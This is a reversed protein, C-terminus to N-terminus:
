ENLTQLVLELFSEEFPVENKSKKQDNNKELLKSQKYLEWIGKISTKTSLDVKSNDKSKVDDLSSLHENVQKNFYEDEENKVPDPIPEHPPSGLPPLISMRNKIIELDDSDDSFDAWFDENVNDKKNVVEEAKLIFSDLAVEANDYWGNLGNKYRNNETIIEMDHFKWEHEEDEKLVIYMTGSLEFKCYQGEEEYKYGLPHPSLAEEGNEIEKILNILEPNPNWSLCEEIKTPQLISQRYNFIKSCKNEDLPVQLNLLSPLLERASTIPKM